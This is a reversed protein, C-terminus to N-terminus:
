EQVSMRKALIMCSSLHIAETKYLEDEKTTYRVKMCDNAKYVLKEYEVMLKRQDDLIKLEEVYSLDEPNKTLRESLADLQTTLGKQEYKIQEFETVLAVLEAKISEHKDASEKVLTFLDTTSMKEYDYTNKLIDPDKPKNATTKQKSRTNFFNM